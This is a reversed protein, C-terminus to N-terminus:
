SLPLSVEDLAALFEEDLEETNVPALNCAIGANAWMMAEQLATLALSQERGAPVAALVACASYIFLQRMGAHLEKTQETAPHYGLRNVVENYDIM